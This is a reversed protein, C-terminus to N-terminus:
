IKAVARAVTTFKSTATLCQAKAATRAVGVGARGIFRLGGKDSTSAAILEASLKTASRIIVADFESLSGTSIEDPNYHRLVVEHGKDELLKIAEESMGDTVAIRGM